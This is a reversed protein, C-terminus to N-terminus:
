PPLHPVGAPGPRPGPPPGGLAVAAALPAISTKQFPALPPRIQDADKMGPGPQLPGRSRPPARDPAGTGTVGAAPGNRTKKRPCSPLRQCTVPLGCLPQCAGTRWGRPDTPAVGNAAIPSTVAGIRTNQFPGDLRSQDAESVPLVQVFGRAIPPVM